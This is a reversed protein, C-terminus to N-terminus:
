LGRDKALANTSPSSLGLFDLLAAPRIWVTEDDDGIDVEEGITGFHILEGVQTPDDAAPCREIKALVRRRLEADVVDQMRWPNPDHLAMYARGSIETGQGAVPPASTVANIAVAESASSIQPSTRNSLQAFAEDWEIWEAESGHEADHVGICFKQHGLKAQAIMEGLLGDPEAAESGAPPTACDGDHGVPKACSGWETTAATPGQRVVLTNKCLKATESGSPAPAVLIAAAERAQSVELALIEARPDSQATALELLIQTSDAGLNLLRAIEADTPRDAM